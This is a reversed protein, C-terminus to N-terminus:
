SREKKRQIGIINYCIEKINSFIFPAVINREKNKKNKEVNWSFIFAKIVQKTFHSGFNRHYAITCAFYFLSIGFDCVINFFFIGFRTHDIIIGVIRHIGREGM